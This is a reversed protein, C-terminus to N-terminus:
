FPLGDLPDPAGDVWQLPAAATEVYAVAALVIYRKNYQRCMREAEARAEAINDYWNKVTNTWNSSRAEAPDRLVIFMETQHM